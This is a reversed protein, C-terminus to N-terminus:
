ASMVAVALTDLVEPWRANEFILHVSAIRDDEIKLWEVSAVAGVPTDTVFDYIVCAENEDVFVRKIENRAIIPSLRRLASVYEDVGRLTKLGPSEFTVGPQLLAPLEELRGDGVAHIYDSVLRKNASRM